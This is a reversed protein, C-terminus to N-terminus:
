VGKLSIIGKSEIDQFYAVLDEKSNSKEAVQACEEIWKSMASLLGACKKITRLRLKPACALREIILNNNAIESNVEAVTLRLKPKQLNHRECFRVIKEYRKRTYRSNLISKVDIPINMM